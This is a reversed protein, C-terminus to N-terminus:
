GKPKEDEIIEQTRLSLLRESDSKCGCTAFYVKKPKVRRKKNSM